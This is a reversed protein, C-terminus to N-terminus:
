AEGAGAAAAAARRADAVFAVVCTCDDMKGGKAFLRALLGQRRAAAAWPSKFGDDGANHFAARALADAARQALEAHSGSSSSSSSSSSSGCSGDAAASVLTEPASGARPLADGAGGACSKSRTARGWSAFAGGFSRRHGKKQQAAAAAAAATPVAAGAGAESMCSRLPGPASHSHGHHTGRHNSIPGNTMTAVLIALLQDDWM